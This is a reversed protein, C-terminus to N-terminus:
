KRKDSLNSENSLPNYLSQDKQLLGDPSDTEPQLFSHLYEFLMNENAFPIAELQRLEQAAGRLAKPHESDLFLRM